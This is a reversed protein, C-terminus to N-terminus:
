SVIRDFDITPIWNEPPIVKVIAKRRLSPQRKCMEDYAEKVTVHCEVSGIVPGPILFWSPIEEVEDADLPEGYELSYTAQLLALRQVVFYESVGKTVSILFIPDDQDSTPDFSILDIFGRGAKRLLGRLLDLFLRIM